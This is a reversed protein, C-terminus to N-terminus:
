KLILCDFINILNDSEFDPNFTILKKFQTKNITQFITEFIKELKLDLPKNWYSIKYKFLNVLSLKKVVYLNLILKSDSSVPGTWKSVINSFDSTYEIPEFNPLIISNALGGLSLFRITQCNVCGTQEIILYIQTPDSNLKKNSPVYGYKHVWVSRYSKSILKSSEKVM